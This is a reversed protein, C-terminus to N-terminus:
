VKGNEVKKKLKSKRSEIHHDKMRQSVEYITSPYLREYLSPVTPHEDSRKLLRNAKYAGAHDDQLKEAFGWFGGEGLQKVSESQTSEFPYICVELVQRKGDKEMCLIFKDRVIADGQSGARKGSAGEDGFITKEGNSRWYSAADKVTKDKHTGFLISVEWGSGDLESQVHKILAERLANGAKIRDGLPDTSGIFNDDALAFNVSFIDHLYPSLFRKRMASLPTKKPREDVLLHLPRKGINSRTERHYVSHLRGGGLDIAQKQPPFQFFRALAGDFLSIDAEKVQKVADLGAAFLALSRVAEFRLVRLEKEGKDEIVMDPHLGLSFVMWEFLTANLIENMPRHEQFMKNHVEKLEDTIYDHFVSVMAMAQDIDSHAIGEMNAVLESVTAKEAEQLLEVRKVLPLELFKPWAIRVANELFPETCRSLDISNEQFHSIIVEVGKAFGARMMKLAEKAERNPISFLLNPIEDVALEGAYHIPIKLLSDLAHPGPKLERRREDALAMQQHAGIFGRVIENTTCFELDPALEEGKKRRVSNIQLLTAIRLSNDFDNIDKIVKELAKKRKSKNNEDIDISIDDNTTFHGAALVVEDGISLFGKTILEQLQVPSMHLLREIKDESDPGSDGERPRHDYFSRSQVPLVLISLRRQASEEPLGPIAFSYVINERKRGESRWREKTADEALSPATVEEGIERLVGNYISEKPGMEGGAAMVQGSSPKSVNNKKILVVEVFSIEHPSVGSQLQSILTREQIPAVLVARGIRAPGKESRHVNPSEVEQMRMDPITVHFHM